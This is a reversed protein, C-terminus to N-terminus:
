LMVTTCSAAMPRSNAAMAFASRHDTLACPPPPRPWSSLTRAPDATAGASSNAAAALRAPLARGLASAARKQYEIFVLATKTKEPTTGGKADAPSFVRDAMLVAILSSGDAEPDTLSSDSPLSAVVSPDLAVCLAASRGRAAALPVLCRRDFCKEM